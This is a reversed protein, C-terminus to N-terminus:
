GVGFDSWSHGGPGNFTIEFRRSGLGRTTIHDTNAGDVVVFAEIERGLASQKCLHRMGLLNGEGEEGVNAVLLLGLPSDPLGSCRKWVRAIALLAALGAGNDAIGPGLFRGDPEVAIEDKSRPALVTDLHATLAVYPGEGCTATVNGARDITANWGSARFQELFWAARDQELFTPAPIRCLQLHIENIWQKERTFWQLCERVGRHGALEGPNPAIALNAPMSALKGIAPCAVKCETCDRAANAIKTRIEIRWACSRGAVIRTSTFACDAGTEPAFTM